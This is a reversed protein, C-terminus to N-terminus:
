PPADRDYNTIVYGDLDVLTFQRGLRGTKLLRLITVGAKLLADQIV